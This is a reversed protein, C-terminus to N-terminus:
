DGGQTRIGLRAAVSSMKAAEVKATEEIREREGDLLEPKPEEGKGGGISWALCRQNFEIRRLLRETAGNGATPALRRMVRGDRPLQYALAAVRLVQTVKVGVTGSQFDHHHMLLLGIPQMHALRARALYERM